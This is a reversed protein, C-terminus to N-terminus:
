KARPGTTLPTVPPQAPIRGQALALRCRPLRPLVAEAFLRCEELHPYGSFIFARIGLDMYREIKAVIQDPDGVLASGCGSRARGIGSWVQDEIYDDSSALRLEDQRVVGASRADQARNKITEGTAADLKSMLREAAARAQDETDRVIVHIRLGYDLTRGVDEARRALDQMTSLLGPETDPWMLYVDCSSACLKRADESYGGFYLLPGGNQQYPAVPATTALEIQYFEGAFSISDRTWAQRLIEIVEGSRRYRAASDLVQGPLDSSIINLTLRGELIHDLTSIARALMPPHVEGCRLAVLLSMQDLSPAVAGAFLLPDQGVQYSSPLLINDFGQRDAELTIARCHEFSSRLDGDAVGLFEYDDDCLASFWAIEAAREPTRVPVPVPTESASM